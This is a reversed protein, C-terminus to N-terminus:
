RLKALRILLSLSLSLSLSFLWLCCVKCDKTLHGNAMEEATSDALGESPVFDGAVPEPAAGAATAGAVPEPATDMSSGAGDGGTRWSAELRARSAKARQLVSMGPAMDMSEPREFDKSQEQLWEPTPKPGWPHEAVPAPPPPNRTRPPNPPSGFPRNRGGKSKARAAM